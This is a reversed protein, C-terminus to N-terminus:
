FEFAAFKASITVSIYTSLNVLISTCIATQCFSDVPQLEPLICVDKHRCLKNINSNVSQMKRMPKSFVRSKIKSSSEFM